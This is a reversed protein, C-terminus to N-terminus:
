NLLNKPFKRSCKFHVVGNDLVKGGGLGIIYDIDNSIVNEALTMAYEITNNNVYEKKYDGLKIIQNCVENGYLEDVLYDTVFLIKGKINNMYLLEQIKDICNQEVKLINNFKMKKEKRLKGKITKCKCAQYWNRMIIIINDVVAFAIKKM